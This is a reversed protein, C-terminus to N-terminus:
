LNLSLRRHGKNLELREGAWQRQWLHLFTLVGPPLGPGSCRDGMRHAQERKDGTGASLGRHFTRVGPQARAVVDPLRNRIRWVCTKLDTQPHLQKPLIVKQRGASILKDLKILDVIAAM